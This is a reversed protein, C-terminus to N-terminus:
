LHANVNTVADHIARGFHDVNTPTIGCVNIRGSNLLYIHHKQTLLKVQDVSFSPFNLSLDTGQGFDLFSM